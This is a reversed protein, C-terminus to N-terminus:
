LRADGAPPPNNGRAKGSRSQPLKAQRHPVAQRIGATFLPNSGLRMREVRRSSHCESKEGRKEGSPLGTGNQAPRGLEERKTGEAIARLMHHESPHTATKIKIGETVTAGLEM